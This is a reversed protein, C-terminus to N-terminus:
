QAYELTEGKAQIWNAEALLANAQSQLYVKKATVLDNEIIIWNDFSIFGTSYQAEAIKSREESAELTKRQVFVSEVADRLAAWTRELNVIAADYASREDAQRQRYLSEAQSVQALRLGGEFIPMSLSLGLDWQDGRPPWNSSRRGAGAASTLEPLFNGCASKVGFSASNKKFAAELVSPNTKVLDEFDPKEEAPQLVTFDGKVSIPMFEGRGMAATLQRQAFELNRKAQSLGFNADAFNAEATMLAGRHELGSQYRLTILNLNDQRIRLIDEAVNILEQATLLNVFASRLSLRVDSSTFRYAQQASKVNESAARVDNIKKFGDFILQTGSVSYSYTSAASNSASSSGATKARSAGLSTDIQPFLGSATIAKLSNEQKVSEASSILDPNNKRTELICDEWSLVEGAMVENFGAFLLLIVALIIKFYRIM